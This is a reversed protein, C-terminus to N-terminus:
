IFQQYWKRYHAIPGDGECLVPRPWCVKNEWIPRDHEFQQKLDEVFAQALHKKREDGDSKVSYAFSVDTNEKDIPTSTNMMLTDILGNMRVVQFGPGHDLTVLKAQGEGGPMKMTFISEAIHLSGEARASTPPITLTGHIFKFHAQDVCNENMDLWSARVKWHMVDPVTWAPDGIEPLDPLEFSPSGGDRDHYFFILGNKEVVEHSHLRARTPIRKAYPIKECRGDPGYEWHHFPCRIREGLVEGGHGLHAGLHACYPDIVRALGSETRYLLWERGFFELPLIEGPALEASYAARFWGNPYPTFPYRSAPPASFGGSGQKGSIAGPRPQSGEQQTESM